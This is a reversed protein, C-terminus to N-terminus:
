GVVGRVVVTAYEALVEIFEAQTRSNAMVYAGASIGMLDQRMRTKVRGILSRRGRGYDLPPLQYDEVRNAIEIDVELPALLSSLQYMISGSNGRLPVCDICLTFGRREMWTDFAAGEAEGAGAAAAERAADAEVLMEEDADQPLDLADPKQEAVHVADDAIQQAVRDMDRVEARKARDAEVAAAAKEAAQARVDDMIGPRPKSATYTPEDDDDLEGTPAPTPAPTPALAADIAHKARYDALAEVVQDRKAPSWRTIKWGPNAELCAVAQSLSPAPDDKLVGMGLKKQFQRVIVPGWGALSDITPEPPPPLPADVPREPCNIRDPLNVAARDVYGDFRKVGASPAAVYGADALEQADTTPGSSTLLPEATQAPPVDWTVLAREKSPHMARLKDLPVPCGREVMDEPSPVKVWLRAAALAHARNAPSLESVARVSLGRLLRIRDVDCMMDFLSELEMERGGICLKTLRCRRGFHTCGSGAGPHEPRDCDWVSDATVDRLAAQRRVLPPIILSFSGVLQDITLTCAPAAYYGVRGKTQVTVHRLVVTDFADVGGHARAANMGQVLMQIDTALDHPEKGWRDVDSSTKLDTVILKRGDLEVLDIKCYVPLPLGYDFTHEHESFYNVGHVKTHIDAVFASDRWPARLLRHPEDGYRLCAELSDHVLSGLSLSDSQDRLEWWGLVRIQAALFDCGRPSLSQM